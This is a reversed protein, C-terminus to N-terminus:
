MTRGIDKRFQLGDFDIKAVASYATSIAAALDSGTATVGLV